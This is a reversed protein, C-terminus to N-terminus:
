YLAQRALRGGQFDLNQRILQIFKNLAPETGPAEVADLHLALRAARDTRFPPFIERSWVSLIRYEEHNEVLTHEMLTTATVGQTTAPPVGHDIGNGTTQTTRWQVRAQATASTNIWATSWSRLLRSSNADDAMALRVTFHVESQSPSPLRLYAARLGRGLLRWYWSPPTTLGTVAPVEWVVPRFSSRREDLALAHFAHRVRAPVTKGVFSLPRSPLQLVGGLSSVTDWVACATIHVEHLLGLGELGEREKQFTREGGRMTRLSWLTFLGRLYYLHQKQLVGADSIFAAPCIEDRGGDFNYNHSLFSYASRIKASIGRGSAGDIVQSVASTGNGVRQRLIRDTSLWGRRRPCPLLSPDRRQDATEDQEGWGVM